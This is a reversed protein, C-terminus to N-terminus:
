HLSPKGGFAEAAAAVSEFIRDSGLAKTVGLAEFAQQAAVSELRAIAFNVGLERCRAILSKLVQAATFDIDIVGAAELIVARGLGAGRDIVANMQARFSDANLFNLPAQFAVVTLSSDDSADIDDDKRPWWVTTGPERYMPRLHTRASTWAGQLLSLGVGLAVGVAIPLVVLAVATIVVFVAELRSARVIAVMDALRVIRTAVFVLVGALAAQPVHVLLGTGFLILLLTAAVATLGAMQSRAGSEAVIATRPPSANVPFAGLLGAFLNAAGLGILDADVDPPKGPEPFSRAVAATQVMCILAILLALPLVGFFATPDAPPLWLGPLDSPVHGLVAVGKAELDFSVTAVIALGVAILAGPIKGSLRHSIAILAFVAAAIALDYPNTAPLGRLIGGAKALTDGTLVGLGLAAPLQSVLIHFAIGALFGVTVPTSLLNGIWGMKLLGAIVIFGGVMIALGAALMLYNPSGIAVMAALAGAFIPTITSDAGISTQRGSGFVLFGVTAAIFAFFGVQPAMGGLRATAMQEPIAIAALTVGAILDAGLWSSQYGSFSRLVPWSRRGSRGIDAAIAM